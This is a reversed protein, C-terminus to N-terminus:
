RPVRLVPLRGAELTVALEGAEDRRIEGDFHALIPGDTSRLTIANARYMTVEPMGTHRGGLALPMKLVFGLHSLPRVLCIDFEGDDPRADPTLYFGGGCSRGIGVEICTVPTEFRQGAVQVSFGAPRYGRYAQVLAGLYVLPGPLRRFSPVHRAVEADIGVGLSNIFFEGWACGVDFRCVPALALRRLAEAPRLRSTGAIRAFDNGTGIPIIGLAPLAAMGSTLLGNAAEHATGDGGMVLVRDAGARAAERAMAAAAGPADTEGVEIDGFHKRAARIAEPLARRGHGGGAAPNALLLSPM